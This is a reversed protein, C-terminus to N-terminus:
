ADRAYPVEQLRLPLYYMEIAEKTVGLGRLLFLTVEHTLELPSCNYDLLKNKPISIINIQVILHHCFWYGLDGSLTSDLHGSERAANLHKNFIQQWPILNRDFFLRAFLGDDMLSRLMLKAFTSSVEKGVPPNIISQVNIYIFEILAATSPTATALKQILEFPHECLSDQVETYLIDKSPFHQYLLAESVGASQALKRTTVGRFGHEAFLPGAADIISQRREEAPLRRKIQRQGM